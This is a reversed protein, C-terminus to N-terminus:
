GSREPSPWIVINRQRCVDHFDQANFTLLQTIRYQDDAIIARVVMDVLSIARRGAAAQMITLNLSRDRYKSDDILVVKPRRIIREFAAVMHPRKVTRTRLVEYTIPWPMLLIASHMSELLEAARQHDEDRQEFAAIWFSTDGVVGRVSSLPM